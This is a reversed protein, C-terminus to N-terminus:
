SDSKEGKLLTRLEILAKLTEAINVRAIADQESDLLERIMTELKNFNTITVQIDESSSM